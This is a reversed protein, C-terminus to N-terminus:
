FGTKTYMTHDKESIDTKTGWGRCVYNLYKIFIEIYIYANQVNIVLKKTYMNYKYFYLSENKLSIKSYENLM